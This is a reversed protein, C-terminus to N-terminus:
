HDLIQVKSNRRKTRFHADWYDWIHVLWRWASAPVCPLRPSNWVVNERGGAAAPAARRGLMFTMRTKNAAETFTLSIVAAIAAHASSGEVYGGRLMRM